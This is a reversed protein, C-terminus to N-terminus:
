NLNANPISAPISQGRSICVRQLLPLISTKFKSKVKYMLQCQGKVVLAFINNFISFFLAKMRLNHFKSIVSYLSRNM